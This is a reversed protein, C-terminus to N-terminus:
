RHGPAADRIAAVLREYVSARGHSRLIRIGDRVASEYFIVGSLIVEHVELQNDPHQVIRVQWLGGGSTGGFTNPVDTDGLRAHLDLYDYGDRVSELPAPAIGTMAWHATVNAFCRTPPLTQSDEGLVGCPIWVGDCLPLYRGAFRDVRMTLNYFNKLSRLTGVAEGSLPLLIAGLDPGTDPTQGRPMRVFRLISREFVCRRLGGHWDILLSVRNRHYIDEIVHDATVICLTGDVDVLTGTGSQFAKEIGDRVDIGSIGVSFMAIREIAQEHLADSFASLPLRIM